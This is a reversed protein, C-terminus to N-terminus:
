RAEETEDFLVDVGAYDCNVTAIVLATENREVVHARREDSATDIRVDLDGPLTELIKRLESVKM